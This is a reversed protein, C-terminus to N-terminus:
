FKRCKQITNEPHPLSCSKASPSTHKSNEIILATSNLLHTQKQNAAMLNPLPHPRTADEPMFSPMPLLTQCSWELNNFLKLSIPHTLICYKFPCIIQDIHLYSRRQRHHYRTTKVMTPCFLIQHADKYRVLNVKARNNM